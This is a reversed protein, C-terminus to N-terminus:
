AWTWMWHVFNERNPLLSTTLLNHNHSSEENEILRIHNIKLNSSQSWTRAVPEFLNIFSFFFILVSHSRSHKTSFFFQFSLSLHFLLSFTFNTTQYTSSPFPLSLFIFQFFYLPVWWNKKEEGFHPSFSYSLVKSTYNCM